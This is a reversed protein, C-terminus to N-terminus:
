RRPPSRRPPRAPSRSGSGRRGSSGGASKGGGRSRGDARLWVFNGAQATAFVATCAGLLMGAIVDSPWHWGVTVRSAAAALAVVGLGALAILRLRPWRGGIFAALLLCFYTARISYGSPLSSPTPVVTLPYAIGPAGCAARGITEFFASPAPQQFYYKFTIEVGVGALLLFVIWFGAMPRRARLCLFALGFAYLLSLEAAFVVSAREGLTRGWCPVDQWLVAALARDLPRHLGTWVLTVLALYAGGLWVVLRPLSALPGAFM